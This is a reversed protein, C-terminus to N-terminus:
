GEHQLGNVKAELELVKKHEEKLAALLLYVMKGDNVSLYKNEDEGESIFAKHYEDPM